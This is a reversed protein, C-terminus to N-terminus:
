YYYYYYYYYYYLYYVSKEYNESCIGSLELISKTVTVEIFYLIHGYILIAIIIRDDYINLLDYYIEAFGPIYRKIVVNSDRRHGSLRGYM